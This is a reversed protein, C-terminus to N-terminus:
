YICLFSLSKGDQMIGSYHKVAKSTLLEVSQVNIDATDIHSKPQKFHLSCKLSDLAHSSSYLSFFLFLFLFVSRHNIEWIRYFFAKSFPPLILCNINKSQYLVLILLKSLLLVLAMLCLLMSGFFSFISVYWPRKGLVACVGESPDFRTGWLWILFKWAFSRM